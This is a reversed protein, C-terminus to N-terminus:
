RRISFQSVQQDQNDDFRRAQRRVIEHLLEMKFSSTLPNIMVSQRDVEKAIENSDERYKYLRDLQKQDTFHGLLIQHAEKSDRIPQTNFFLSPSTLIYKKMYIIELNINLIIKVYATNIKFVIIM